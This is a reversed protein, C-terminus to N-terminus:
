KESASTTHTFMKYTTITNHNHSINLETCTTIHNKIKHSHKPNNNMIYYANNSAHQNTVTNRNYAKSNNSYRM